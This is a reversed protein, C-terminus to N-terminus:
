LICAILIISLCKLTRSRNNKIIAENEDNQLAIPLQQLSDFCIACLDDTILSESQSQLSTHRTSRGPFNQKVSLKGDCDTASEITTVSQNVDAHSDYRSITRSLEVANSQSSESHRCHSCEDFMEKEDDVSM